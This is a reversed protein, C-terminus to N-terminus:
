DTDKIKKKYFERSEEWGEEDAIIDISKEAVKWLSEEFFKEVEEVSVFSGRAKLIEMIKKIEENM